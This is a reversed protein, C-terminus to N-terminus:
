EDFYMDNVGIITHINMADLSVVLLKDGTHIDEKTSYYNEAIKVTNVDVGKWSELATDFKYTYRGEKIGRYIRRNDQISLLFGVVYISIILISALLEQHFDELCLVSVLLVMGACLGLILANKKLEERYRGKCVRLLYEEVKLNVRRSIM